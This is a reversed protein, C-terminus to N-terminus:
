IVLYYMAALLILTIAIKKYLHKENFITGGVFITVLIYISNRVPSILSVFASSVAMYYTIRYGITLLAIVPISFRYQSLNKVMEGFGGFKLVMFISLNLAIFADVLIFYTFINIGLTFLYKMLITGFATLLSDLLIIWIYKNSDFAKDGASTKFLLLYTCIIMIGIGVYQTLFLQEHLLPLALLVVFIAPISSFIPSAVTISGHRFVKATLLYTVTSVLSLLYVAVIDFLTVHFNAFPLFVLSIVLIVLSFTASYVTAHDHKLTNKELITATGMLLSSILVLYYWQVM